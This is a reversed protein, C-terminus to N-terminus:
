AADRQFRELSPAPEMKPFSRHSMHKKSPNLPIIRNINEKLKQIKNEDFGDHALDQVFQVVAEAQIRQSLSAVSFAPLKNELRAKQDHHFLLAHDLMLSLILSRRSGEQGPHKTLVGWGEHGKWDEFFVEILWRFFYAQVIDLTRWSLNSAMLYRCHKEDPYRLAIIFRKKEHSPVYVRASAVWIQVPAEGRISVTQLVPPYRRFLETVAFAKGRLRILQNPKMKTIVQGNNLIATAQELFEASGYLGDALFCKVKIQPFDQCFTQLSQLAIQIKTPYLPNREPEVPRLKKCIGQKKLREDEHKWSKWQPDPIYFEFGVPFSAKPTVLFLFVLCQGDVFGGTLKDKLKHVGHIQTTSKSRNRDVDDCCLAGEEIGYHHLIKLVSVKFLESWFIKSHRFMWSLAQHGFQGLSAREFAKWCIQNTVMIASLCFGLWWKQIGSLRCGPYYRCLEADLISLYEQIFPLPREILMLSELFPHVM